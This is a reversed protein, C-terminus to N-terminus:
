INISKIVIYKLKDPTVPGYVRSDFSNNRNDGVCFLEDKALILEKEEVIGGDEMLPYKEELLIGNIYFRGDSVKITEGPLGIVRKVLLKGNEKFVVVDNRKVDSCGIPKALCINGNKYTPEMSEGVVICPHFIANFLLAIGVGLGIFFLYSSISKIIKNFSLSM